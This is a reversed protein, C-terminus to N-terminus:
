ELQDKPEPESPRTNEILLEKAKKLNEPNISFRVKSGRGSALASKRPSEAKRLSRRGTGQALKSKSVLDNPKRLISTPQSMAIM